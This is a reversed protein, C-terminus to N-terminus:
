TRKEKEVGMVSNITKRQVIQLNIKKILKKVNELYDNMTYFM